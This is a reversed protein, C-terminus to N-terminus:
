DLVMFSFSLNSSVGFRIFFEGEVGGSFARDMRFVVNHM